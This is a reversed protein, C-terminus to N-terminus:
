PALNLKYFRHPLLNADPEVFNATDGIHAIQVPEVTVWDLLNTSAQILYNYGPVGGYFDVEPPPWVTINLVPGAGPGGHAGIDNYSQGISPPFYANNYIANTSGADICPSGPVIILDAQSLFIPNHNINGIGTVANEVDCYTVNTAGVIQTGNNANFYLITNLVPLSPNASYLGEINNYAITCNVVAGNTSQMSIGGGNFVAGFSGSASVVNSGIVSNTAWFTGANIVAIGGGYAYSVGGGTTIVSNNAVVCNLLIDSGNESLIGGGFGGRDNSFASGGRCINNRINCFRLVANGSVFVGGGYSNENVVSPNAINNSILCGTVELLSNTGLMAYIGAGNQVSTNDTILCNQLIVAGAANTNVISVGGGNTSSRNKAIVCNDLLPNSNYIQVGSNISNSIICNALISGPSSYNFYIGQWGGNTGKFVIPTGPTGKATLVGDVEFAYNTTFIVTVGPNITLGAVNINGVVSYPSNNSTWVQNIITGSVPTQANASLSTSFVGGGTGLALLLGACLPTHIVSRDSSSKTKKM